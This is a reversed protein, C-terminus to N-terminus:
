RQQEGGNGTIPSGEKREQGVGTQSEENAKEVGPEEQFGSASVSM